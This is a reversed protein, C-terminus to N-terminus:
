LLSTGRRFHWLVLEQQTKEKFPEQGGTDIVRDAGIIHCSCVTERARSEAEECDSPQNARM